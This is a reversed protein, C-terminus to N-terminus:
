PRAQALRVVEAERGQAFRQSVVPSDLSAVAQSLAKARCERFAKTEVMVFVGVGPVGGCARSAAMSARRLLTEAGADQSLDLDGIPVRVTVITPKPTLPGEQGEAPYAGAAMLVAIMLLPTPRVM